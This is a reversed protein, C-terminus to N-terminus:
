SCPETMIVELRANLSHGLINLLSLVKVAAMRSRRSCWASVTTMSPLLKRILPWISGYAMKSPTDDADINPSAPSAQDAKNAGVNEFWRNEYMKVCDTVCTATHAEPAGLKWVKWNPPYQVEYGVKTNRCMKWGSSNEYNSFTELPSSSLEEPPEVPTNSAQDLPPSPPQVLPMKLKQVMSFYAVGGALTTFFIALLTIFIKRNLHPATIVLILFADAM